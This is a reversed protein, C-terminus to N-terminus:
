PLAAAQPGARPRAQVRIRENHSRVEFYRGALNFRLLYYAGGNSPQKLDAVVQGTTKELALLELKTYASQLKPLPVSRYSLFVLVPAHQLQSLLLCQNPVEHQWALGTGDRRLACVSGNIRVAPANIHPYEGRKLHDLLVYVNEGDAVAHM